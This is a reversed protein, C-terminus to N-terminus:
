HQPLSALLTGKSDTKPVVTIIKEEHIQNETSKSYEFQHGFPSDAYFWDVLTYPQGAGGEAFKLVTKSTNPQPRDATATVLNTIPSWNADFVQVTNRDVDSKEVRFWYTGPQLVVNGPLQVSQDFTLRTMQDMDDARLTPAAMALAFVLALFTGVATRTSM